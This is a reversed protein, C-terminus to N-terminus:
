PAEMPPRSLASDVAALISPPRPEAHIEAHFEGDRYLFMAPLHFLEFENTLAMERQADVEFLTYDSFIQSQQVFLGKLQKCAGCAPASFLVLSLGTTAALVHHFNFQDLNQM